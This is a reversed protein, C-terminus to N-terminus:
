KLGLEKEVDELQHKRGLKEDLMGGLIKARFAATYKGEGDGEPVLLLLKRLLEDYTERRYERLGNLLDRTETSLQITTYAVM